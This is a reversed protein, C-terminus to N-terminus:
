ARVRENKPDLMPRLSAEATFLRGAVEIEYDGAEIFAKDVSEANGVYGIGIASGLTHGYM